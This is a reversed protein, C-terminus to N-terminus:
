QAMPITEVGDHGHYWIYAVHQDALWRVVKNADERIPALVWLASCGTRAHEVYQKMAARDDVVAGIIRGGLSRNSRFEEDYALIQEATYLRLTQDNFGHECLSSRAAEGSAADQLMAILVGELDVVAPRSSPGGDTTGFPWRDDLEAMAAEEIM